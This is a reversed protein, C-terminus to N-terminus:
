IETGENEMELKKERFDRNKKLKSARIFVGLAERSAAGNREILRRRCMWARARRLGRSCEIM